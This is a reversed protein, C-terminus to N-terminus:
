NRLAREDRMQTHTHTREDLILRLFIVAPHSIRRRKGTNFFTARVHDHYNYFYTCINWAVPRRPPQATRVCVEAREACPVSCEDDTSRAIAARARGTRVHVPRRVRSSDQGRARRRRRGHKRSTHQLGRHPGPQRRAGEFQQARGLLACCRGLGM